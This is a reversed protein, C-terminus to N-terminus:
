NDFLNKHGLSILYEKKEQPSLNRAHREDPLKDSKSINDKAWLPQLNNLSWCFKFQKDTETNFIFLNRPLIHDIQINGKNFEDWNMGETFKSEIHTKLKNLTYNVLIEWHRFNKKNKIANKISASIRCNLINNLYYRRKENKRREKFHPIHKIFKNYRRENARVKERNNKRYNQNKIRECNKCITIYLNYKKNLAFYDLSYTNQCKNCLKWGNEKDIHLTNRYKTIKGDVINM